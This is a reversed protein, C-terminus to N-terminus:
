RSTRYDPSPGPETVGVLITGRFRNDDPNDHDHFSCTGRQTFRASRSQGPALMGVENIPPCLEHTPHPDSTVAINRGGTNTFMVQQGVDIRTMQTSVGNTTMTITAGVGGTPPAPSPSPGAPPTGGGGGGGGCAVAVAIAVGVIGCMWGRTM